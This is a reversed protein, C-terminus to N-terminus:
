VVRRHVRTKVRLPKLGTRETFLEALYDSGSETDYFAVPKTSEFLKHITCAIEAGTRSKGSGQPGQLTVKAFGPADDIVRLLPM